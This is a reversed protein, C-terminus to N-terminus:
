RLFVQWAGTCNELGPCIEDICTITRSQSGDGLYLGEDCTLEYMPIGDVCDLSLETGAATPLEVEKVLETYSSVINM